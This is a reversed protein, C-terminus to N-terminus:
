DYYCLFVADQDVLSPKGVVRSDPSTSWVATKIPLLCLIIGASADSCLMGTKPHCNHYEFSQEDAAAVTVEHYTVDLAKM